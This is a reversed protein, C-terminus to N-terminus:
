GILFDGASLSALHVGKLLLSHEGATLMTDGAPTEHAAGLVAEATAFLTHDVLITDHESGPASLAHFDSVIAAMTEPTFHFMDDGSGGAVVPSGALALTQAGSTSPSIALTLSQPVTSASTGNADVAATGTIELTYLGQAAAPTTLTLHGGLDAADLTWARTAEDYTGHAITSGAPAGKITLTLHDPWSGAAEALSVPINLATGAMGGPLAQAEIGGDSLGLFTDLAGSSVGAKEILLLNCGDSPLTGDEGPVVQVVSCGQPLASWASGQLGQEFSQVVTGNVRINDLLLESHSGALQGIGLTTWGDEGVVASFTHWGQAGESGESLPVGLLSAHGNVTVFAYDGTKGGAESLAQWDFTVVDGAHLQLHGKVAAGDDPVSPEPATVSLIPAVAATQEPGQITLHLTEAVTDPGSAAQYAITYTVAQGPRLFSFDAADYTVTGTQRDIHVLHALDIGSCGPASVSALCATGSVYPQAIDHADPDSISTRDALSVSRCTVHDGYVVQDTVDAVTITPADNQGVLTVTVTETTSAGQGDAITFHFTDTATEGAGLAKLVSQSVAYSWTVAGTGTGTSDRLSATLSGLDGTAAQVLLTHTDSLDVDKFTFSGATTAAAAATAAAAPTAVSLLTAPQLLTAAQALAQGAPAEAAQAAAAADLTAAETPAQVVPADNIGSITIPLIETVTQGNVQASFQVTYVVKEGQALFAFSSNDYTVTGQAPNLTVLNQLSLGTPISAPGSVSLITATDAIFPVFAGSSPQIVQNPITVTTIQPINSQVDNFAVVLLPIIPASSSFVIKTETVGFEASIVTPDTTKHEQVIGTRGVIDGDSGDGANGDDSLSGGSGGGGKGARPNINPGGPGQDGPNIQPITALPTLFAVLANEQQLDQATKTTTQVNVQGSGSPTVYVATDAQNVTALVAGTTKNLLVYSGVAGNQEVMVSFRSAGDASLIDVLVATGRIGMTTVPTDVRMDGTKAIQGALFSISGQVLSFLAQNDSGGESYVLDNLAMRASATLNFATGDLFTLALTSARGTQVIDGKLVPDGVNLTIAVGNRMVTAEGSVAEVRGIAAAAAAPTQGAQAYQGPALPGALRDVIDASLVAGSASVLDPHHESAFYDVVVFREGHEGTLVLDSGARRFDATFLLHADPVVVSDTASLPAFGALGVRERVDDPMSGTTSQM